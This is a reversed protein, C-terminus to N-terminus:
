MGLKKQMDDLTTKVEDSLKQWTESTATKLEALKAEVTKSAENMSTFLAPNSAQLEAIKEKMSTLRKQGETTAKTRLDAWAGAATDGVSEAAEGVKKGAETARNAVDKATEVSKGALSKAGGSTSGGTSGGGTTGGGSPAKQDCAVLGFGVVGCVLVMALSKNMFGKM